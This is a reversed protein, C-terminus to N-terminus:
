ISTLPLSVIKYIKQRECLYIDKQSLSLNLKLIKYVIGFFHLYYYYYYYYHSVIHLSNVWISM